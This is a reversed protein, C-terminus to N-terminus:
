YWKKMASPIFFWGGNPSMYPKERRDFSEVTTYGGKGNNQNLYNFSNDVKYTPQNNTRGYGLKPAKLYDQAWCKGGYRGGECSCKSTGDEFIEIFHGPGDKRTRSGVFFMRGRTATGEFAVGVAKRADKLGKLNAEAEDYAEKAADRKNNAERILSDFNALFDRKILNVAENKLSDGLTGMTTGKM